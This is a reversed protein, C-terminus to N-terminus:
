ENTEPPQVGWRSMLSRLEADNTLLLQRGKHKRTKIEERGALGLDGDLILGVRRASIREDPDWENVIAQAHDAIGQMSFDKEGLLDVPGYFIDVVAQLIIAPLQMGRKGIMEQNYAIMFTTLEHQMAPDDITAKLAMMVQNLRPEISEEAMSNDLQRPKHNRLRHMLLKNRLARAALWFRDDLIYPIRPDPRAASMRKTLCRTETAKDTFERRTALLKPGYINFSEPFHSDGESKDRWVFGQRRDFGLNLIKIMENDTDSNAFDAEDIISIILIRM